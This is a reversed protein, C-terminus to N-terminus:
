SNPKMSQSLKVSLEFCSFVLSWCQLDPDLNKVYFSMM